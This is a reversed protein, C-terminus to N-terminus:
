RIWQQKWAVGAEYDAGAGLQWQGYTYGEAICSM